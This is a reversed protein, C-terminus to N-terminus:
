MLVIYLVSQSGLRGLQSAPGIMAANPPQYDIIRSPPKAIRLLDDVVESMTPCVKDLM